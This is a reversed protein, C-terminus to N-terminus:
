VPRGAATTHRFSALLVALISGGVLLSPPVLTRQLIYLTIAPIAYGLLLCFGASAQRRAALVSACLFLFAGVALAIAVSTPYFAVADSSPYAVSWGQYGMGIAALASLASAARFLWTRGADLPASTRIGQAASNPDGHREIM